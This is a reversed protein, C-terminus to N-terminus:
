TSSDRARHHFGWSFELSRAKVQDLTLQKPFKSLFGSSPSTKWTERERSEGEKKSETEYDPCTKQFPLQLNSSILLSGM